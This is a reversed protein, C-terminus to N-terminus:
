FSIHAISRLNKVINNSNYAEVVVKIQTDVALYKKRKQQTPHGANVREINKKIYSEELRSKTVLAAILAQAKNVFM